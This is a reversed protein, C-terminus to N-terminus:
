VYSTEPCTVKQNEASGAMLRSPAPRVWLQGPDPAASSWARTRQRQRSARQQHKRARQLDGLMEWGDKLPSVHGGDVATWRIPCEEVRLGLASALVLIEVDFGFGRSKTMAFLLKAAPARFAKFGCQTDVVPATTLHQTLLQYALAGLRRPVSRDRVEAGVKTRSGLAIDATTLMALLQPLHTIDAAMDADVYVISQGKAAMVGARVAAGKGCNWPLRLVQSDARGALFRMGVVDTGDTSGDDVLLLETHAGLDALAAILVPLSHPLRVAENFAPVIVTVDIVDGM